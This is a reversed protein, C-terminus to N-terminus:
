GALKLGGLLRDLEPLDFQSMLLVDTSAALDQASRTFSANSLVAARHLGHYRAGAMAEQIAKNGVPQSYLKCQIGVRLGNKSAIVDIGQDGAMPTVLTEWGFSRLADAVWHEFEHGDVPVAAPNFGAAQRAQTDGDLDAIVEDIAEGMTLGGGAFGISALFEHIAKSRTDSVTVGYDNRVLANRVNRTLAPRHKDVQQQIFVRDQWRAADMETRAAQRSKDISAALADREFQISGRLAYRALGYGGLPPVLLIAFLWLASPAGCSATVVMLVAFLVFLAVASAAWLAIFKAWFIFKNKNM